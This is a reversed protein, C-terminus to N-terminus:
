RGLDVDPAESVDSAPRFFELARWGHRAAISSGPWTAVRANFDRVSGNYFRRSAAVKDETHVLEGQLQLFSRSARLKPYRESVVYTTRVADTLEHEAEAVRDPDHAHLLGARAETVRRLVTEEHSAYARVSEVLAPILDARRQLQALVDSWAEDVRSHLRVLSANARWWLGALVLLVVLIVLGAVLM